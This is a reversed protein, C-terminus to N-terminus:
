EELKLLDDASKAAVLQMFDNTKTIEVDQWDGTIMYCNLPNASGNIRKRKKEVNYGLTPLLVQLKNWSMIRSQNRGGATNNIDVDPVAMYEALERGEQATIWRNMFTEPVAGALVKVHRQYPFTQRAAQIRDTRYYSDIILHKFRPDSIDIGREFARTVIVFDYEYPVLHMNKICDIVRKQEENLPADANNESHIEIVHFGREQAARAISLNHTISPSFCWYGIGPIPVLERVHDLINRYYIDTTARFSTELKGQNSASVLSAYFDRAADPSASLGICLIRNEQIIKEWFGLLVLPMYEKKTSHEQILSLIEGNSSSKRAYETKRAKAFASAAFDFISDCEDWCIVDVSELWRTDERMVKMGLAQYCMVGIKNRAETTWEDESTQWFIDADCCQEPYSSIISDKLATTDTLFLIRFLQNDRTFERLHNVAWYTKGTRVGCDLINYRGRSFKLQNTVHLDSVTVPIIKDEM